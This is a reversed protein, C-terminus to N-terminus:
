DLCGIEGISKLYKYLYIKDVKDIKKSMIPYFLFLFYGKRILKNYM